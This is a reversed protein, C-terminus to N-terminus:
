YAYKLWDNELLKMMLNTCGFFSFIPLLYPTLDSGAVSHAGGPPDWNSSIEDSVLKMLYLSNNVHNVLLIDLYEGTGGTNGISNLLCDTFALFHESADVLNQIM